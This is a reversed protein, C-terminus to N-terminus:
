SAQHGRWQSWLADDFPDDLALEGLVVLAPSFDAQGLHRSFDACRLARRAAQAMPPVASPTASVVIVAANPM